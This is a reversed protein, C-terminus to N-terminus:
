PSNLEIVFNQVVSLVHDCFGVIPGAYVSLLPNGALKATCCNKLAIPFDALELMPVDFESDGASVIFSVGLKKQLAILARGKNIMVPVIYIKEGNNYVKVQAKDLLINLKQLTGIVDKTKTFVFANDVLRIEFFVNEDHRLIEMALDLSAKCEDVILETDKKWTEDVSGHV